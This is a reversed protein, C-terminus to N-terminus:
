ENKSNEMHDWLIQVLDNLIYASLPDLRRTRPQPEETLVVELVYHCYNGVGDAVPLHESDMNHSDQDVAADVGSYTLHDGEM